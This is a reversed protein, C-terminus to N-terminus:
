IIDSNFKSLCSVLKVKSRYFPTLIRSSQKYHHVVFFFSNHVMMYKCPLIGMRFSHKVKISWALMKFTFPTKTRPIKYFLIAVCDIRGCQTASLNKNDDQKTLKRSEQLIKRVIEIIRLTWFRTPLSARHSVFMITVLTMSVLEKREFVIFM